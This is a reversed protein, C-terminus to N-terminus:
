EISSSLAINTSSYMDAFILCKRSFCSSHAEIGNIDVAGVAIVEQNLAPQVVTGPAPGNDGLATVCFLNRKVARQIAKGLLKGLPTNPYQWGAFIIQVKKEVAYEIGTLLSNATGMGNKDLVKIPLIQANPAVGYEKAAILGACYTGHGNFDEITPEQSIFSSGEPACNKIQSHNYALGTDL